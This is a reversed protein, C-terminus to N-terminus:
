INNHVKKLEVYNRKGSRGKLIAENEIDDKVITITDSINAKTLKLNNTKAPNEITESDDTFKKLKRTKIELNNVREGQEIKVRM